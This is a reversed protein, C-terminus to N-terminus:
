GGLAGLAVLNLWLFAKGLRFLRVWGRLTLRGVM